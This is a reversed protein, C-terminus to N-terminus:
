AKIVGMLEPDTLGAKPSIGILGVLTEDKAKLPRMGSLKVQKYGLSNCRM